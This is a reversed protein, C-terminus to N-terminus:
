RQPTSSVLVLAPKGRGASLEQALPDLATPEGGSRKKPLAWRWLRGDDVKMVLFWHELVALAALAGLLASPLAAEPSAAQLASVGFYGIAVAGLTVSFPFLSNMPEVRTWSALYRMREPFFEQHLNPVGLFLNLKASWRAIALLSFSQAALANSSQWLGLWLLGATALVALEHWLGTMLAGKFRAWGSLEPPCARRSALPGAITGALYAFELFGWILLGMLFSGIFAAQETSEGLRLAFFWALVYVVSLAGLSERRHPYRNALWLLAATSGWWLLVAIGLALGLSAV